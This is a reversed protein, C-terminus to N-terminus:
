DFTLGLESSYPVKAIYPERREKPYLEGSNKLAHYRGLSIPVLLEGARIPDSHRYEQYEDYFVEPLVEIGDFAKYFREELSQDSCFARMTKLCISDFENAAIEYEEQWREAVEGDYIQDLWQGIKGEHIAQGNNSRLVSLTRKVLTEDYIHQGDAPETFVHVPAIGNMNRRRNIRGFRQILAELPAPDTYITDLDIDLSVEVVQTAVLLVPQRKTSISGSSVRIIAEKASRDRMNFRGHLLEIHIGSEELRAALAEYVTQARNVLNCVVLVSKGQRADSEIRKLAKDSILEGELLVLQHRKFQEFLDPSANVEPPDDLIQLLWEKILSPFTATMVFFRANFFEKLYQVTKLILALRKVEYAHIEDFIFAAGQYDSLLAEYGKLRYMGKLMQYPSFVRVPPYNLKNLNRQWRAQQAVQAPDDERELLMRYLALLSRGHQLGVLENGFTNDLRKKMANMSAQYPLTYFLRPLGSGAERQNAAWLLAAETKGSGTPAILLASGSVAGAEIQHDFLKAQTLNGKALIREKEIEICPLKGTHASASHDANIMYGRLALTGIIQISDADHLQRVFRLYVSLWHHIREAGKKQVSDVAENEGLVKVPGIGYGSLDLEDIWANGCQTLWRWLSQLSGEDLETVLEAVQDEDFEDYVPPYLWKIDSADRHHSVVAAALWLREEENLGDAIWDVFALSLVEHRHPWKPGGRLRSQFGVAAKGFDHLFAAWYLIHWLHPVGVQAPLDPRLQIFDALRSLVLWTHRALSEPKGDEGKQASKAWLTEEM